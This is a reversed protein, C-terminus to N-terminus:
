RVIVDIDKTSIKMGRIVMNAGDFVYLKVSKTVATDIEDFLKLIDEKSSVKWPYAM